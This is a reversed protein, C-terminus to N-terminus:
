TVILSPPVFPRRPVSVFLRRVVRCSSVVSWTTHWVNLRTQLSFPRCCLRRLFSGSAGGGWGVGGYIIIYYIYCQANWWRPPSQSAHWWMLHVRSQTGGGNTPEPSRAVVDPPSPFAQWWSQHVRSQTGGGETSEPGRAVVKPPSQVAHWWMQHIRSPKGGGKASERLGAVVKPPSHFFRCWLVTM